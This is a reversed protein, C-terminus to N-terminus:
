TTPTRKKTREIVAKTTEVLWFNFPAFSIRLTTPHTPPSYRQNEIIKADRVMRTRQLHDLNPMPVTTPATAPPRASACPLQPRLFRIALTAFAFAFAFYEYNYSASSLPYFSLTARARTLIRVLRRTSKPDDFNPRTLPYYSGKYFDGSGVGSGSAVAVGFVTFSSSYGDYPYRKPPSKKRKAKESKKNTQEENRSKWEKEKRHQDQM